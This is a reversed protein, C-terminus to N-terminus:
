KYIKAATKEVFGKPLLWVLFAGIKNITGAIVEAKKSFMSRVGIRAVAEPTMNVKEATKHAKATINARNPFNTDTSGPSLCTVSIGTGKLEQRLGRTFHLVFVKTAAYITMGPLAQYATTSSVNLIYSETHRKLLPIFLHCLQVLTNMNLMMINFSQEYPIKEFDGYLGYGANNVLIDVIYKNEVAWQYVREAAQTDSLDTAFCHITVPYKGSIDLAAEKLLEASRAVLLLSHNQSALELAIAKGIGRNAGTILAYAM